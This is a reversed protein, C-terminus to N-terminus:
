PVSVHHHRSRPEPAADEAESKTLSLDVKKSVCDGALIDNLTVRGDAILLRAM